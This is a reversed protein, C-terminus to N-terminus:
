LDLRMRYKLPEDETIQFGLREYLVRVRNAKLVHLEVAAAGSVGAQDILQHLLTTGIGRNQHEPSVEIRGIYFVDGATQADIVGAPKGDVLVILLRSPDFWNRHFERQVTDDWPGYTAEVVDGLAQRNLEYLFNDDAVTAPRLAVTM